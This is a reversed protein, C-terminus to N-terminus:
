RRSLHPDAAELGAEAVPCRAPVTTNGDSHHTDSAIQDRYRLGTHCIARATSTRTLKEALLAFSLGILTGGRGAGALGIVDSWSLPLSPWLDSASKQVFKMYGALHAESVSYVCRGFLILTESNRWRVFLFM